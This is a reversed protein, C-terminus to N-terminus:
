VFHWYIYTCTHVHLVTSYTWSVKDKKGKASKEEKGGEHAKEQEVAPKSAPPKSSEWIAVDLAKLEGTMMHFVTGVATNYAHVVLQQDLELNSM